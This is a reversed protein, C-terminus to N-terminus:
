ATVGKLRPRLALRREAELAVARIRATEEALASAGQDALAYVKRARGDVVEEREVRVMGERQLRELAGYLTGTRLRVRGNSIEAVEQMLAYGHRPEDALATLLLLTPEQM